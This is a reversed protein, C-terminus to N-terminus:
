VLAALGGIVMYPVRIRELFGCVEAVTRELETM